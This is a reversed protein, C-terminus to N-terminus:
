GRMRRMLKEDFESYPPYRFQPDFNTSRRFVAKLNSFERFGWEGHYRGMGSEGVGGFPLDPVLLHLLTENVSVGGSTTERIVRDAVQQEEAFVYTVLPRPRENVFRVAEDIDRFEVVPLVPGFIEEQMAPCDVGVPHLVTPEIYLDDEDYEGGLAVEGDSIMEVLRRHHRLNAIRAYDSSQQPDPGYFADISVRLMEILEAAISQHALVYDPAVCTQGANSFKGNVIRRAAVDLRASEHVICPSKGGLELTVPTLNRAAAEMVVRGVRLSGTFFIRDFPLELLATTEPVGGRVVSVANSDMYRPLLEAITEATAPAQESLKLVACNGAALCPVLPGVGLQFPYNWTGIILAVGLPEWMCTASCPRLVLPRAPHLPRCWEELHKLAHTIEGLVFGTETLYSEVRCKRLDADLAEFIREEQERILARLALLQERRWELDHTVLSLHYTRLGTLIQGYDQSAM